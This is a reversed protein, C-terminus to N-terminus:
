AKGTRNKKTRARRVAIGLDAVTKSDFELRLNKKMRVWLDHMPCSDADSCQLHGLVCKDYDRSGEVAEIVQRVTVVAPDGVLDYGGGPGTVAKLFRAQVLAQFTKRTYAEPIGAAKCIEAARFRKSTDAAAIEALARLTYECGKSYLQFM